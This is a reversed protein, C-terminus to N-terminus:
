ENDDYGESDTNEITIAGQLALPVYDRIVDLIQETDNEDLLMDSIFSLEYYYKQM